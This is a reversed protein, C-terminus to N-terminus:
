AVMRRYLATGTFCRNSEGLRGNRCCYVQHFEDGNQDVQLVVASWRAVLQFDRVTNDSYVTFQRAFGGGSPVTWFNYQGTTNTIHGVLKGDPSYRVMPYFLRTAAFQKYQYKKLLHKGRINKSLSSM